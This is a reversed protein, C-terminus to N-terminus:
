SPAQQDGADRKVEPAPKTTKPTVRKRTARRRAKAKPKAKLIPGAFEANARVVSAKTAYRQGDLTVSGPSINATETVVQQARALAQELTETPAPPPATEVVANALPRNAPSASAWPQSQVVFEKPEKDLWADLREQWVVQHIQLTLRASGRQETVWVCHVEGEPVKYDSVHQIPYPLHVAATKGGYHHEPRGGPGAGLTCSNLAAIVLKYTDKALWIREDRKGTLLEDLRNLETGLRAIEKLLANREGEEMDDVLGASLENKRFLLRRMMVTTEAAESSVYRSRRAEEIERTKAIAMNLYAHQYRWTNLCRQTVAAPSRRNWAPTRDSELEKFPGCFGLGVEVPIGPYNSRSGGQAVGTDIAQEITQELLQTTM